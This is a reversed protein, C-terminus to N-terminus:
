SEYIYGKENLSLGEYYIGDKLRIKTFRKCLEKGFKTNSMEYENNRRAWSSYDQYVLSAKARSGEIQQTRDDLYSNVVDMEAKYEKTMQEVSKPVDLGEEMWKVCGDVAWNMIAPLEALLKTTLNQDQQEKTFTAEFPILRIRRWIGNDTGRIIPKHNTAMWIKFEPKYEFERGYLFRATVKDGGTLQKILGENLKANENPESTSVFRSGKLRAIDTNAGGSQVKSVLLTEVQTTSAYDGMLNSIIDLFVSKGNSGEGYCIFICQEKTSGTLSYGIAKQIFDILEKDKLFIDNLFKIWLKPKEYNIECSSIRSMLLEKKHPLLDGTRLDLIGKETNFLSQFKDLDSNKIPIGELHQLEKIMAEKGNSNLMRTANKLEEKTQANTLCEEGIVEAMLKIRNELDNVWRKGDWLMFCKNDVNYHIDEGFRDYIRKANGTDNLQYETDENNEIIEGTEDDYVLEKKQTPNYVNLCNSIANELTIDGYTSQGTKRDWKDRMLGSSRFIRDMQSKDKQTWFALINCLAMDAESQSNYLHEYDGHYLSNFKSGNRSESAKSIIENDDLKLYSKNIEFSNSVKKKEKLYKDFLVKVKETCDNISYDGIKDGTMVFFRAKDYMEVNGKRRQGDPLKGKCIIHIGNGSQSFETYSQITNIFENKLNDDCDDLDIGFYGNDFMFGIGDLNFQKIANVATDYDSWTSNDNSRAGKGNYPNIPIKSIKKGEKLKVKRWCVWQKLEKLESPINKFKNIAM